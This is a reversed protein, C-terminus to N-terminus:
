SNITSDQPDNFISAMWFKLQYWCWVCVCDNILPVSRRQTRMKRRSRSSALLSNAIATTPEPSKTQQERQLSLGLAPKLVLYILILRQPLVGWYLVQPLTGKHVTYIESYLQQGFHLFTLLVLSRQEFINFRTKSLDVWRQKKKRKKKKKKKQSAQCTLLLYPSTSSSFHWFNMALKSAQVIVGLSAVAKNESQTAMLLHLMLDMTSRAGLLIDTSLLTWPYLLMQEFDGSLIILSIRKTVGPWKISFRSSAEMNCRTLSTRATTFLRRTVPPKQRWLPAGPTQCLQKNVVLDLQTV